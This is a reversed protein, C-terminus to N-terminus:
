MQVLVLDIAKLLSLWFIHMPYGEKKFSPVKGFVQGSNIDKMFQDKKLKFVRGVLDPRNQVTEFERLEETIEQWYPNCTFTIFFDPKHYKRCIAM